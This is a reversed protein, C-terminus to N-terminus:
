MMKFMQNSMLKHPNELSKELCEGMERHKKAPCKSTYQRISSESKHGTTAMIHRAEFNNEEPVDVVSHRICHNTYIQTLKAKKSISKMVTGLTDKGVPINDYWPGDYNTIKNKLRQWLDESKPNFKSKYLEFADVPCITSGSFVLITPFKSNNTCIFITKCIILFFTIVLSKMCEQKM